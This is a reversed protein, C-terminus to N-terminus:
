TPTPRLQVADPLENLTTGCTGPIKTRDITIPKLYDYAFAGPASLCLVLTALASARKKEEHLRAVGSRRRDSM